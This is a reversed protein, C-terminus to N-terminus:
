QHPGKRTGLNRLRVRLQIEGKVLAQELEDPTGHYVKPTSPTQGVLLENELLSEGRQFQQLFVGGEYESECGISYVPGTKLDVAGALLFQHFAISLLPYVLMPMLLLTIITRRDRLISSLEKRILRGMRGLAQGPTRESM